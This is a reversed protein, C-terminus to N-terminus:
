PSHQDLVALHGDLVLVPGLWRRHPDIPSDAILRPADLECVLQGERQDLADLWGHCELHACHRCRHGLDALANWNGLACHQELRRDSSGQGSIAECGLGGVLLVLSRERSDQGALLEVHDHVGLGWCM